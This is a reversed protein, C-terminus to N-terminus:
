VIVLEAIGITLWKQLWKLPTYALQSWLECRWQGHISNGGTPLIKPFWEKHKTPFCHNKSTKFDVGVCYHVHFHNLEKLQLITGFSGLCPCMM